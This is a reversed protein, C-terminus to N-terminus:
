IVDAFLQDVQRFYYLDSVLLLMTTGVSLLALGLSTSTGLLTWRAFDVVWLWAIMVLPLLTAAVPPAFGFIAMIVFLLASGLLFDPVWALM